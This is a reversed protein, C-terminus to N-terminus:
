ATCPPMEQFQTIAFDNRVTCRLFAQFGSPSAALKGSEWAGGRVRALADGSPGVWGAWLLGDPRGAASHQCSEAALPRAHGAALANRETRAALGRNGGPGSDGWSGTQQRQLGRGPVCSGWCLAAPPSPRGGRKMRCPEHLAEGQAGSRTAAGLARM